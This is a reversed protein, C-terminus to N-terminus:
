LVDSKIDGWNVTQILSLLVPTSIIKYQHLDCTNYTATVDYTLNSSIEFFHYVMLDINYLEIYHRDGVTHVKIIALKQQSEWM